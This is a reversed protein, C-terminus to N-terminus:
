CLLQAVEESDLILALCEVSCPVVDSQYRLVPGDKQYEGYFLGQRRRKNYCQRM